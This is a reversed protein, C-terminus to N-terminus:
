SVEADGGCRGDDDDASVAAGPDDTGRPGALSAWGWSTNVGHQPSSSSSSAKEFADVFMQFEVLGRGGAVPRELDGRLTARNRPRRSVADAAVELPFQNSRIVGGAKAKVEVCCVLMQQFLAIAKAASGEASSILRLM